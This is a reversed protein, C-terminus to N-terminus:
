ERGGALAILPPSAADTENSGRRFAELMAEKTRRERAQAASERDNRTPQDPTAFLSATWTWRDRLARDIALRWGTATYGRDKEGAWGAAYQELQQPDVGHRRGLEIWDDPTMSGPFPAPPSRRARPARPAPPAAPEREEKPKPIPNPNPNPPTSEQVEDSLFADSEKGSFGQKRAFKRVRVVWRNPYKRLEYGVRACLETVGQDAEPGATTGAIDMRDTAKLAVRDGTKGAWKEGAKRWLEVLMGRMRPDAWVEATKPHDAVSLHVKVHPRTRPM